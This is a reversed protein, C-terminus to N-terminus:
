PGIVKAVAALLVRHRPDDLADAPMSRPLFALALGRRPDALGLAGGIGPHGFASPSGLRWARSPLAFGCGFASSVGLVRDRGTVRPGVAARLTRGGVLCPGAGPLLMAYLRALSRTTAVANAAPLQATLTQRRRVWVEPAEDIAGGVTMAQWLPTGPRAFVTTTLRVLLPVRTAAQLPVPPPGDPTGISIALGHPRCILETLVEGLRGGTIRRVLEDALAGWTLAHYAPRGPPWRLHEDALADALPRGDLVEALTIPHTPAILGAQHSLLQAVTIHSKGHRGFQPWYRAVPAEFDIDGREALVALCAAAVGKSASFIVQRTDPGHSGGYLDVATAGRHVIHLGAGLEGPRRMIAAFAERVPRWGPAVEGHITAGAM